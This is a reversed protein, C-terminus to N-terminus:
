DAGLRKIRNKLSKLEGPGYRVTLILVEKILKNGGAKTKKTRKIGNAKKSTQGL